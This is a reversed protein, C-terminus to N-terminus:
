SDTAATYNKGSNDSSSIKGTVANGARRFRSPNKELSAPVSLYVLIREGSPYKQSKVEVLPFLNLIPTQM